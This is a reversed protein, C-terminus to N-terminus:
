PETLRTTVGNIIGYQAELQEWLANFDHDHALFTNHCLEHLAVSMIFEFPYFREFDDLDRIQIIILSGNAVSRGLLHQETYDPSLETLHDVVWNHRKIIPNIAVAVRRM